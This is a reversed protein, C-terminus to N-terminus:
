APDSNLPPNPAEPTLLANHIDMLVQYCDGFYSEIKLWFEADLVQNKPGSDFYSLIYRAGQIEFQGHTFANRWKIVKGLNEELKGRDSRKILSDRDIVALLLKRKASFSCWDSGLLHGSVFELDSRLERLFTKKLIENIEGEVAYAADIVKLCRDRKASDDGVHWTVETEGAPISLVQRFPLRIPPWTEM